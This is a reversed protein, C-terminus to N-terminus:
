ASAEVYLARLAAEFATPDADKQLLPELATMDAAAPLPVAELEFASVAVSGSICRFVQDVVKSNLVAALLAPSVNPRGVPRVM